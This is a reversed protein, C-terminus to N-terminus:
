KPGLQGCRGGICSLGTCCDADVDCKDFEAACKPKNPTCVLAGNQQSCYGGCCEDGTECSKGDTKCPDVVWYGRANGALLEQAPLYFAPHSPDKGPPANLDIAAVWLKKTTPQTSLDHFRWDSWYPNITAVNGYLRRSTFVVWAYGGSVVPNMTPEYNLGTDDAHGNANTPLYGKGNLRDLAVAVPKGKSRLDLWWLEARTGTNSCAGGSDCTSRTGGFDRGNYQTEIQFIVGDNSPLWSPWVAVQQGPPTFLQAYNSFTKTKPDFDIAALSRRDVHYANFAIHRGDGSFSPTAARLGGPLGSGMPAGNAVSYLNSPAQMGGVLGGPWAMGGGYNNADSSNSFLLAGDPSLTGWSFRGDQPNLISEQNANKLDYTSTVADNGNNGQQTILRSGDASVTHCARCDNPGTILTPSNAGHKIALTGARSAALNTGYSNYYVTGKLSGKAVKWTQKIPGYAVGNKAFVLEIVLDEGNNSYTMQEWAKQPIPHHVFPSPANAPKSFTGKYDYADEHAHIYVADYDGQQGPKWQLLPALLEHPWVTGDYPYLIAAGPDAAPAGQLVGLTQQGVAGGVGESGVGRPPDNGGNQSVVLAVTLPASGTGNQYTATVTLKGGYKGTPTLVGNADISALEGRDVSWKPAVPVGDATATFQLTPLPQGDTVTLTQNQPSVVVSSIADPAAGLQADDMGGGADAPDAGGDDSAFGIMHRGECAVVLSALVFGTGLLFHKM